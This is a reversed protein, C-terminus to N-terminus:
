KLISKVTNNYSMIRQHISLEFSRKNSISIKQLMIFTKVTVKSQNLVDESFLTYKKLRSHYHIVTEVFIHILL